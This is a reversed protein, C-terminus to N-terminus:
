EEFKGKEYQQSQQLNARETKMFQYKEDLDLIKDEFEEEIKRTKELDLQPIM